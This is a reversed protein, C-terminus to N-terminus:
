GRLAADFLLKAVDTGKGETPYHHIKLGPMDNIELIPLPALTPPLSIDECLIDFGCIFLGARRTIDVAIERWQVHVDETVDHASGGRSVSDINSVKLVEGAGLVENMRAMGIYEAVDDAQLKVMPSNADGRLQNQNLIEILESVTHRGDGKVEAAKRYTAAVYNGNLVLIRYLRGSLQEQCMIRGSTSDQAALRIASRVGDITTISTTVGISKSLDVPKIVVSMHSRLFDVADFSQDCEAYAPVSYGWNELFKMTLIKDTAIHVGNASSNMPRSGKFFNVHGNKATVKLLDGVKEARWGRRAAEDLLLQRTVSIKM